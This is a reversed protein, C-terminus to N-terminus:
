SGSFSLKPTVAARVQLRRLCGQRWNCSRTRCDPSTWPKSLRQASRIKRRERGSYDASSNLVSCPPILCPQFRRFSILEAQAELVREVGREWGRDARISVAVCEFFSRNLPSRVPSRHRTPSHAASTGSTTSTTCAAFEAGPHARSSRLCGPSTRIGDDVMSTHHLGLDCRYACRAFLARM